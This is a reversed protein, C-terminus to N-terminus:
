EKFLGELLMIEKSNSAITAIVNLSTLTEIQELNDWHVFNSSDYNMLIVGELEIGNIKAYEATLILNSLNDSSSDAVIITSLGLEWILDKLLYNEEKSSIIPSSINGFGEILLYDYKKNIQAIDYKIKDIDIKQNVRKAALHPPINDKWWYSCCNEALENLEANQIVYNVDSDIIHGALDTINTLLPKFYGCKLKSEKMKKLILASIYPTNVHTNIGTIFLKKSM